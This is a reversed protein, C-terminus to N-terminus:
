KGRSDYAMSMLITDLAEHEFPWEKSQICLGDVDFARCSEADYVETLLVSLGNVEAKVILEVCGGLLYKFRVNM